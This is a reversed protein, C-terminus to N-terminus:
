GHNQKTAVCVALELVDDLGDLRVPRSRHYQQTISLEQKM